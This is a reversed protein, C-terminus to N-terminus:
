PPDGFGFSLMMWLKESYNKGVGREGTAGGAVKMMIIDEGKREM